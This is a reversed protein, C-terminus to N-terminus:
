EGAAIPHMKFTVPSRARLEENVFVHLVNVQNDKDHIGEHVAKVDVYVYNILWSEDAEVSSYVTKLREVRGRVSTPRSSPDELPGAREHAVLEVRIKRRAEGRQVTLLFDLRQKKKPVSVESEIDVNIINIAARQFARQYALERPVLHKPALEREKVFGMEFAEWVAVMSTQVISKLLEETNIAIGLTPVPLLSPLLELLMQPGLIYRGQIWTLLGSACLKLCLSKHNNTLRELATDELSSTFADLLSCAMTISTGDLATKIRAYVPQAKLTRLLRPGYQKYWEKWTTIDVPKDAIMDALMVHGAQNFLGRHGQCYNYIGEVVDSPLAAYGYDECAANLIAAANEQTYNKLLLTGTVNFPSGKSSRLEVSEQGGVLLLWRKSGNKLWGRLTHLITDQKLAPQYLLMDVEDIIIIKLSDSPELTLSELDRASELTYSGIQEQSLRLREKFCRVLTTKGTQRAGYLLLCRNRKVLGGVLDIDPKVGYYREFDSIAFAGNIRFTKKPSPSPRNIDVEGFEANLEDM